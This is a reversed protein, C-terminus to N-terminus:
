SIVIKFCCVTAKIWMQFHWKSHRFFLYVSNDVPLLKDMFLYFLLETPDQRFRIRHFVELSFLEEQSAGSWENFGAM